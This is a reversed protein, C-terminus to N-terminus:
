GFADRGAMRPRRASPDHNARSRDARQNPSSGISEMREEDSAFATSFGGSRREEKSHGRSIKRGPISFHPSGGNAQDLIRSSAMSVIMATRASMWDVASTGSRGQSQERSKASTKSLKRRPFARLKKIFGRKAEGHNAASVSSYTVVRDAPPAM